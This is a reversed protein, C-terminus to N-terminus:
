FNKLEASLSAGRNRQPKVRNLRSGEKLELHLSLPKSSRVAKMKSWVPCPFTDLKSYRRPIEHYSLSGRSRTTRRPHIQVALSAASLWQVGQCGRLYQLECFTM